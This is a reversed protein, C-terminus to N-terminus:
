NRNHYIKFLLWNNKIYPISKNSTSKNLILEPQQICSVLIQFVQKRVTEALFWIIIDFSLNHISFLANFSVRTACWFLFYFERQSLKLTRNQHKRAAKHAILVRSIAAVLVDHLTVAASSLVFTVTLKAGVGLSGLDLGDPPDLVSFPSSKGWEVKKEERKREEQYM